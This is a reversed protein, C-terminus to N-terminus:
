VRRSRKKRIFVWIHLMDKVSGLMVPQVGFWNSIVWQLCASVQALHGPACLFWCPTDHVAFSLALMLQDVDDSTYGDISCRSVCTIIRKRM